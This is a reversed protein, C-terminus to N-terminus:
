MPICPCVSARNALIKQAGEKHRGTETQAGGLHRVAQIAAAGPRWLRTDVHELEERPRAPRGQRGRDPGQPTQRSCMGSLTVTIVLNSFHQNDYYTPSISLDASM